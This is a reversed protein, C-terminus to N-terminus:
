FLTQVVIQAFFIYIATPKGDGAPPTNKCQVEIQFFSYMNERKAREQRDLHFEFHYTVISVVVQSSNCRFATVFYHHHSSALFYSFTEVAQEMEPLPFTWSDKLQM